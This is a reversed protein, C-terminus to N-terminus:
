RVPPVLFVNRYLVSHSGSVLNYKTHHQIADGGLKQGTSASGVLAELDGDGGVVGGGASDCPVALHGVRPVGRRCLGPGWAFRCLISQSCVHSRVISFITTTDVSFFARNMLDKNNTSVTFGGWGPWGCCVIVLAM